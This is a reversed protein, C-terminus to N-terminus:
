RKWGLSGSALAGTSATGAKAPLLPAGSTHGVSSVPDERTELSSDGGGRRWARWRATHLSVQGKEQRREEDREAERLRLELLLHETLLPM